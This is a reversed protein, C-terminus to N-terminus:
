FLIQTEFQSTFMSNGDADYSTRGKYVFLVGSSIEFGIDYGHITSPTPDFDFPNEVNSQQYFAEAKRLRPIISTNLSATAIFSKNAENTYDYNYYEDIWESTDNCDAELIGEIDDCTSPFLFEDLKKGTMDQYGISIDIVNYIDATFQAYFGKMAGYIYLQSEKTQVTDSSIIARELDYAQDWYNFVFNRSSQRYEAQFKLRGLTASFGLPVFGYGLSNDFGEMAISETEGILQAFQSYLSIKDNLKYTVDLSVGSVPDSDSSDDEFYTNYNLGAEQLYEDISLTDDDALFCGLYLNYTDDWWVQNENYIEIAENNKDGDNPYHDFYDPYNDDDSDVLGAMQNVDQVYSIGISTKPFYEVSGRVGVVGPVRKFDSQIYELKFDSIEAKLDLGVRRVQPYEMVNSYRNVLIGHGLTASPLAGTRFYFPDHPRGWRIYYIKDIITQYASKGDSFDWNGEYLGGEEDIYLYIDLGVGVKGFSLEPRLAFQNYITGDITVSGITGTIVPDSEDQLFAVSMLSIVLLSHILTKM